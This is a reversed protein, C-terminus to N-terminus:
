RKVYQDVFYAKTLECIAINGHDGLHQGWGYVEPWDGDRQIIFLTSQAEIEGREIMDAMQRLQGAIDTVRPATRMQVIDAM